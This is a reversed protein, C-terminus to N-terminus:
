ALSPVSEEASKGKIWTVRNQDGYEKTSEIRFRVVGTRGIIEQSNWKGKRGLFCEQIRALNEAPNYNDTPVLSITETHQFGPQVTRGDKCPAPEELAIIVRLNKGAGGKQDKLELRVLKVKQSAEKLVPRTTETNSLDM